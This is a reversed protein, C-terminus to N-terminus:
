HRGVAIHSRQGLCDSLKGSFNDVAPGCLRIRVRVKQCGAQQMCHFRRHDLVWYALKKPAKGHRRCRDPQRVLGMVVDLVLSDDQLPDQQRRRLSDILGQLPRGNKFKSSCQKQTNFLNGIDVTRIDNCAAQEYEDSSDLEDRVLTQSVQNRAFKERLEDWDKESTANARHVHDHSTLRFGEISVEDLAQKIQAGLDEFFIRESDQCLAQSQVDDFQAGCLHCFQSMATAGAAGCERCINVQMGQGNKNIVEDAKEPEETADKKTNQNICKQAFKAHGQPLQAGCDAIDVHRSAQLLEQAVSGRAQPPKSSRRACKNPLFPETLNEESTRKREESLWQQTLFPLTEAM